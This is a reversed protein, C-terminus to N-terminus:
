YDSTLDVRSLLCQVTYLVFVPCACSYTLHFNVAINKHGMHSNVQPALNVKFYLRNKKAMFGNLGLM